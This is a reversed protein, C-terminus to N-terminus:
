SDCVSSPVIVLQSIYMDILLTYLLVRFYVPFVVPSHTCHFLGINYNNAIDKQKKRSKLTPRYFGSGRLLFSSIFVVSFVRCPFKFKLLVRVVLAPYVISVCPVCFYYWFMLSYFDCQM